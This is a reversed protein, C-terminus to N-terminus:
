VPTQSFTYKFLPFVKLKTQMENQISIHIKQFCSFWIQPVGKFFVLSEKQVCNKIQPITLKCQAMSLPTSYSRKHYMKPQPVVTYGLYLKLSPFLEKEEYMVLCSLFSHNDYAAPEKSQGGLTCTLSVKVRECGYSPIPVHFNERKNFIPFTHPLNAYQFIRARLTFM